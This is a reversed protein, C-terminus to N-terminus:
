GGVGKIKALLVTIHPDADIGPTWETGFYKRNTPYIQDEFVHTSSELATMDVAYGDAVYWYAHDTVFRVTATLKYYSEGENAINFSDKDGVQKLMPTARVTHPIPGAQAHKLRATLDYLDRGPITTATLAVASEQAAVLTIGAPPPAVAAPAGLFNQLLYVLILIFIPTARLM